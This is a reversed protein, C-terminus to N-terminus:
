NALQAKVVRVGQEASGKGEPEGPLHELHHRVEDDGDDDGHVRHHLHEAPRGVHDESPTVPTM